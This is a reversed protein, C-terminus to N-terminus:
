LKELHTKFTRALSHKCSERHKRRRGDMSCSTRLALPQPVPSKSSFVYEERAWWDGPTNTSYPLPLSFVDGKVCLSRICINLSNVKTTPDYYSEM